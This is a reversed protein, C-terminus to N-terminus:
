YEIGTIEEGNRIRLEFWDGRDIVKLKIKIIKTQLNIPRLSHTLNLYFTIKNQKLIKKIRTRPRDLGPDEEHLTPPTILM